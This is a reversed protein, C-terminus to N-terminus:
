PTVERVDWAAWLSVACPACYASVRGTLQNDTDREARRLYHDGTVIRVRCAAPVDVGFHEATAVTFCTREAGTVPDVYSPILFPAPRGVELPRSGDPTGTVTQQELTFTM